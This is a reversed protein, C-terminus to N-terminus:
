KRLPQITIGFVISSAQISLHTGQAEKSSLSSAQRYAMSIRIIESISQQLGIQYGGLGLISNFQVDDKLDMFRNNVWQNGHIIQSIQVLGTAQISLGRYLKQTFQISPSIGIYDTQYSYAVNAADGVANYQNLNLEVGWNFKGLLKAM